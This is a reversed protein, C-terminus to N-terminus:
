GSYNTLRFADSILVDGGTRFHMLFGRQNTPRGNAGFLHPLFEVTTGVRDVIAYQQFDGSLLVYDNATATLAGDMASNEVLEWGAMRPRPGADDVISETLGSGKILVRYGNIISLNAMFRARARWRAPLAAQNAYVDAAALANTGTAIVSGANASVATIIGRPQGTGTGLTFANSELQAKSDVMLAGVQQAIDSDEYLEVSVPVFAQGKACVIAPQLLAPSDDSVEAAEADWSATVGTSTVFRKENYASTTVRAVQRMPDVSGGSSILIQPDLEYPVLFGGAGGTGLAMARTMNQVRRVAGVEERSWSFHGTMPDRMWRLFAARYHPQSAEIAYRALGADPDDDREIDVTARQRAADPMEESREIATLAQARLVGPTAGGRVAVPEAWPDGRFLPRAGWREAPSVDQDYTGGPTGAEVQGARSAAQLRELNVAGFEASLVSLREEQARTLKDHANLRDMEDTIASLRAVYDVTM